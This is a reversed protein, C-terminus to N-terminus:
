HVDSGGLLVAFDNFRDFYDDGFVDAIVIIVLGSFCLCLGAFYRM